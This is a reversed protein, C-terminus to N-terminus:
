STAVTLDTQSSVRLARTQRIFEDLAKHWSMFKIGLEKQTHEVALGGFQPRKAKDPNQATFEVISGLKVKDKGGYLHNILYDAFAFQTAQTSSAIHFFGEKEQSAIIGIPEAAEDTFTPTFYQDAFIPYLRDQEYLSAINRAHDTKGAFIARYPYAIRVIAARVGSEGVAEEGVRKTWGYWIVERSSQAPRANEPYPGPNARTGPFVFDTSVHLLFLDRERCAEALNRTGVVNTQWALGEKDGRQREAGEVDTYAAFNVVVESTAQDLWREVAGKDALNLERSPPAAETVLQPSLERVRSGVLGSAGFFAVRPPLLREKSEIM